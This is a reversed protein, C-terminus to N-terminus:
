ESLCVRRGIRRTQCVVDELISDLEAGLIEQWFVFVLGDLEEGPSCVVDCCTHLWSRKGWSGNLIGKAMINKFSLTRRSLFIVGSMILGRRKPWQPVHGPRTRMYPWRLLIMLFVPRLASNTTPGPIYESELEVVRGLVSEVWAVASGSNKGGKPEFIGEAGEIRLITSVVLAKFFQDRAEADRAAKGAVDTGLCWARDMFTTFQAISETDREACDHIVRIEDNCAYDTIAFCLCSRCGSGPMTVFVNVWSSRTGNERDQM